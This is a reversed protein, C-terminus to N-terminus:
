LERRQAEIKSRIWHVNNDHEVLGDYINSMKQKYGPIDLSKDRGRHTMNTLLSARIGGVQVESLNWERLAEALECFALLKANDLGKIRKIGEYLESIQDFKAQCSKTRLAAWITEIKEGNPIKFMNYIKQFTCAWKGMDMCHCFTLYQLYRSLEDPLSECDTDALRNNNEFHTMM